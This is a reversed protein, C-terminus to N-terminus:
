SNSKDQKVPVPHINGSGMLKKIEAVPTLNLYFRCRDQGQGNYNLAYSYLKGQGGIHVHLYELEELQKIHTKIQWDTWGIYERIMRRNFEIKEIPVNSKGAM